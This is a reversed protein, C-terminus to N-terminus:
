WPVLVQLPSARWWTGQSLCQQGKKGMASSPPTKTGAQAHDMGGTWCGKASPEPTTHAPPHWASCLPSTLNLGTAKKSIVQHRPM